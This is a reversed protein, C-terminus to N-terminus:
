IEMNNRFYKVKNMVQDSLVDSKLIDEAIEKVDSVEIDSKLIESCNYVIKEVRDFVSDLYFVMDFTEENDDYVMDAINENKLICNKIEEKHEIIYKKSEDDFEEIYEKLGVIYNFGMTSDIGLHIIDNAILNSLSTKEM